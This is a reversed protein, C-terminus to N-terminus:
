RDSPGEPKGDAGGQEAGAGAAAANEAGKAAPPGVRAPPGTREPLGFLPPRAPGSEVDTFLRRAETNVAQRIDTAVRTVDGLDAEREVATRVETAAKRLEGVGRAVWRGIEPLRRPGFVILGIGLLVLIEFGGISGFM